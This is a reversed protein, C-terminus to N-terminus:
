ALKKLSPVAVSEFDEKAIEGRGVPDFGTGEGNHMRLVVIELDKSEVRL